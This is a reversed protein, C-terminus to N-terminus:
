PQDIELSNDRVLQGLRLLQTKLILDARKAAMINIEFSIDKGNSILNAVGGSAAFGPTDGVLLRGPASLDHPAPAMSLDADDAVFLVHCGESDVVTDPRRVNVQHGNMGRLAMLDLLIGFPDQGLICLDFSQDPSLFEEPWMTFKALNYLFKAKAKYEKGPSIKIPEAPLPTTAAVSLFCIVLLYLSRLRWM